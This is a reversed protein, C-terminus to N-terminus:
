VRTEQVAPLNRVASGGSFGRLCTLHSSVALETGSSPFSLDTGFARSMDGLVDTSNMYKRGIDTAEREAASDMYVKKRVGEDGKGRLVNKEGGSLLIRM